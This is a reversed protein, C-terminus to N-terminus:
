KKITPESRHSGTHYETIPTRSPPFGCLSRQIPLTVSSQNALRRTNALMVLALALRSSGRSFLTPFRRSSKGYATEPSDFRNKASVGPDLSHAATLLGPRLSGTCGLLGAVLLTQRSGLLHPGAIPLSHLFRSARARDVRTISAYTNLPTTFAAICCQRRSRLCM